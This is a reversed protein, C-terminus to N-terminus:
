IIINSNTSLIDPQDVFCFRHVYYIDEFQHNIKGDFMVRPKECEKMGSCELRSKIAKDLAGSAMFLLKESYLSSPQCSASQLRKVIYFHRMLEASARFLTKPREWAWGAACAVVFGRIPLMGVLILVDEMGPTGVQIQLVREFKDAIGLSALFSDRGRNLTAVSHSISRNEWWHFAFFRETAEFYASWRTMKRALIGQIPRAAFGTSDVISYKQAEAQFANREVFESVSKAIAVEKKQHTGGYIRDSDVGKFSSHFIHASWAAPHVVFDIKYGANLLHSLVEQMPGKSQM